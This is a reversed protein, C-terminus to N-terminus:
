NMLIASLVQLIFFLFPFCDSTAVTVGLANKPGLTKGLTYLGYKDKDAVVNTNSDNKVEEDGDFMKQAYDMADKSMDLNIRYAIPEFKTVTLNNLLRKEYQINPDNIRSNYAPIKGIYIHSM